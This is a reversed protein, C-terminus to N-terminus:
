EKAFLEIESIAVNTANQARFVEPVDIEIATVDKANVLEFTQPKNNDIPRVDDSQNNSYVLHLLLPRHNAAFEDGAGSTVIIKSITVPKDFTLTLRPFNAPDFPAAWYTNSFKDVALTGAHDPIETSAATQSPRVPVFKPNFKKNVRDSISHIPSKVFGNLHDRLPPLFLYLIGGVFVILALVMRVKRYAKWARKGLRPKAAGQGPRSGAEMVKPRKLRQWFMLRRWWKPKVVEAAILENGCRSCFKRTPANGEGCQGCVLDGPELRRSPKTKQVPATRPRVRQPAVEEEDQDTRTASGQVDHV